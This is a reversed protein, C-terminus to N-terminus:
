KNSTFRGLGPIRYALPRGTWDRAIASTAPLAQRPDPRHTVTAPGTKRNASTRITKLMRPESELKRVLYGVQRPAFMRVM